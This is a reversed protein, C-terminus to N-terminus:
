SLNSNNTIGNVKNQRATEIDAKAADKALPNVARVDAVGKTKAADVAQQATTAAEPTDTADPQKAIEALQSDALKKAEAKAATKEAQSLDQRNDIETNKTALEDNIAKKAAEKAVPTVNNIATTGNGKATNVEATTTANEIATKAATAKETAKNKAETKEAESLDQRGEIASIKSALDQDIANKANTKVSTEPNDNSIATTGTNQAQTLAAQTKVTDANIADLAAKKDNNVKAIAADKEEKTAATNGNIKAIQATAAQEVATIAPQKDLNVIVTHTLVDSEKGQSDVVKYKVVYRGATTTDITKVAEDGNVSVVEPTGKTGLTANKDDEHDAATVLSLPNVTDGVNVTTETQGNTSALTPKENSVSTPVWGVPSSYKGDYINSVVRVDTGEKIKEKMELTVTDYFGDSTVSTITAKSADKMTWQSDKNERKFALESRADTEKNKYDVYTIGADHPVKVVLKNSGAVVSAGDKSAESPLVKSAGLAVPVVTEVSELGNVTQTVSLPERPYLQTQDTINSYLGHTLDVSWNGDTGVTVNDYLTRLQTPDQEDKVSVKITAGPTGKGKLTRDTSYIGDEHLSGNPQATKTVVPGPASRLVSTKEITDTSGDKYTM